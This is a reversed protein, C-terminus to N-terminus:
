TPRRITTPTADNDLGLSSSWVHSIADLLRREDMGDDFVFLLHAVREVMAGLCHAIASADLSPDVLGESQWSRMSATTRGIYSLRTRRRLEATPEDRGALEEYSALIRASDRYIEFFARNTEDIRERLSDAGRRVDGTRQLSSSNLSEIVARFVAEKSDFHTYFTGHSMGARRSIETITVESFGRERFLEAAATVLAGATRHGRPPREHELPSDNVSTM